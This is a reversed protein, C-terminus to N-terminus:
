RSELKLGELVIKKVLEIDDKNVETALRMRASAKALRMFGVVIRPSVEILYKKENKKIESTFDIILQEFKKPIEVEYKEAFKVYGRIFDEDGGTMKRKDSGLIKKTIEVFRELDPKRVLFVLHFRSLLAPDFPMQKKLTEITWGVFSDGKPNATALVRVRADFKHHEGGKDYTVFGKEMANYLSARDKDDMLNLEDIACIGQDAKPLLGKSVEKAKVAVTLGVGSTGSGLGFSSVPHLDAASRIIDTKGTGPDGLLLIHFRETSFLQLAAAKKILDLGKINMGIYKPIKEAATKSFKRYLKEMIINKVNENVESVFDGTKSDDAHLAFATENEVLQPSTDLRSDLISVRKQKLLTKIDRLDKKGVHKRFFIMAEKQNPKLPLILRILDILKKTM